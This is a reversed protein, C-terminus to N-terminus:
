KLFPNFVKKEEERVEEPRVEEVEEKGKNVQSLINIPSMKSTAERTADESSMGSKEYLEKLGQIIKESKTMRKQRDKINNIAETSIDDSNLNRSFGTPASSAKKKRQKEEEDTASLRARAEFAIKALEERHARLTLTDMDKVLNIEHNFLRSFLEEQPTMPNDKRSYLYIDETTFGLSKYERYTKVQELLTDYSDESLPMSSPRSRKCKFDACKDNANVNNLGCSCIWSM